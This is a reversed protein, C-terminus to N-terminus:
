LTSENKKTGYGRGQRTDSLDVHSHGDSHPLKWIDLGRFVNIPHFQGNPRQVLLSALRIQIQPTRSHFSTKFVVSITHGRRVRAQLVCARVCSFVRVSGQRM